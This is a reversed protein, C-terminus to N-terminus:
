GRDAFVEFLDDKEELTYSVPKGQLLSSKLGGLLLQKALDEIRHRDPKELALWATLRSTDALLQTLLDLNQLGIQIKGRNQPSVTQFSCVNQLEVAVLNMRWLEESLRALLVSHPVHTDNGPSTEPKSTM